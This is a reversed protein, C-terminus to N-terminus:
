TRAGAPEQAALAEAHMADGDTLAVEIQAATMVRAYGRRMTRLTAVHNVASDTSTVDSGFVVHFGRDFAGRATAECCYNTMTGCVIVTRTGYRRLLADLETGVFADYGHKRIVVEDPTVRLERSIEVGASGARLAGRAVPACYSSTDNLPRPPHTATTFVVPVGAARCADVLQRVRPLQRYAEPQCMVSDPRVFDEELDIVILACEAARIEFAGHRDVGYDADARAVLDAEGEFAGPASLTAADYLDADTLGYVRRYATVPDAPLDPM